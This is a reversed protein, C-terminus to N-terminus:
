ASIRALGEAVADTLSTTPRGILRRLGDGPHDLEGKQIGQDADVLIEAVVPPLGAGVLVDRHEAPSLDRYVVEKGSQRTVESALESMSFSADGGLAHIRNEHRKTLAEVAALAYDLRSAAAIRGQGASGVIEGRALASSLAETYNEFYWGNRLFVFPIGSATIAEETARHEEALKLKSTDARLISTYALQRAGVKKAAEIVALHQPLRRGVVNASILLVQSAGSLADVVTAPVDYDARRVVVGRAALDAAKEPARVAAVVSSPPVKKILEEVVYRGLHGTAGTVVIM